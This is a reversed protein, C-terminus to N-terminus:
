FPQACFFQHKQVTTNSFVRSSDRSLMSVFGTLGSPFWGKISVPLVSASASGGISHGGWTFLQSVPFSGSLLYFAPLSPSSLPHSPQIADGVQHVSNSCIGLSPSPYPFRTHQLGQPWLSDSMVTRSFLLLSLLYSPSREATIDLITDKVMLLAFFIDNLQRIKSGQVKILWSYYNWVKILWSCWVSLYKATAFSWLKAFLFISCHYLTWLADCFFM